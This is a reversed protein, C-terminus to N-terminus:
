QPQKGTPESGNRQGNEGCASENESPNKIMASTDGFRRSQYVRLHFRVIQKQGGRQDLMGKAGILTQHQFFGPLLGRPHKGLLNHGVVPLPVSESYAGSQGNRTKSNIQQRLEVREAQVSSLPLQGFLALPHAFDAFGGSDPGSQEFLFAGPRLGIHHLLGHGAEFFM